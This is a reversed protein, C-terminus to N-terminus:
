GLLRCQRVCEKWVPRHSLSALPFRRRIDALRATVREAVAEALFAFDTYGAVARDRRRRLLSRDFVLMPDTMAPIHRPWPRRADPFAARGKWLRAIFRCVRM